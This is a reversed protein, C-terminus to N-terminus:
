PSEVYVMLVFGVVIRASVASSRNVSIIMTYYPSSNQLHEELFITACGVPLSMAAGQSTPTLLIVICKIHDRGINLSLVYDM